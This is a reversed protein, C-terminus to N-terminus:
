MRRPEPSANGGSALHSRISRLGSGYAVLPGDYHLLALLVENVLTRARDIDELLTREEAVNQPEIFGKHSMVNRRSLASVELPTPQFGVVEWLRRRREGSSITNAERLREQVRARFDDPVAYKSASLAADVERCVKKLIKTTVLTTRAPAFAPSELIVNLASTIDRIELDLQGANWRQLYKIAVDLAIEDEFRMRMAREVMTELCDGLARVSLADLADIAQRRDSGALEDVAFLSRDVIEGDADVTSEARVHLDQGLLLGLVTLLSITENEALPSGEYALTLYPENNLRTPRILLARGRVRSLLGNENFHRGFIGPVVPLPDPFAMTATTPILLITADITHQSLRQRMRLWELQTTDGQHRCAYAYPIHWNGDPDSLDTGIARERYRSGANLQWLARDGDTAIGTGVDNWSAVIHRTDSIPPGVRCPGEYAWSLAHPFESARTLRTLVDVDSDAPM